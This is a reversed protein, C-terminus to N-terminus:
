IIPLIIVARVVTQSAIATIAAGAAAKAPDGLTTDTPTGSRWGVGTGMGGSGVEAVDLGAIGGAREGSAGCVGAPVVEFASDSASTTVWVVECAGVPVIEFVGAL